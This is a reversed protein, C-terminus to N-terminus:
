IRRERRQPSEDLLVGLQRQAHQRRLLARHLLAHDRDRVLQEGLLDIRSCELRREVDLREGIEEHADGLREDVAVDDGPSFGVHLLRDVDDPDQQVRRGRRRPPGDVSLALKRRRSREHECIRTVVFNSRTDAIAIAAIAAALAAAAWAAVVGAMSTTDLRASRIEPPSTSILTAGGSPTEADSSCTRRLPMSMVSSSSGVPPSSPPRTVPSLRPLLVSLAVTGPPAEVLWVITLWAMPPGTVEPGCIWGHCHSSPATSACHLLGVVYAYSYMEDVVASPSPKATIDVASSLAPWLQLTAVSASDSIM